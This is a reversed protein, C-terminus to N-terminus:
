SSGQPNLKIQKGFNKFFLYHTSNFLNSIHPDVLCYIFIFLRLMINYDCFIIRRTKVCHEKFNDDYTLYIYHLVIFYCSIQLLECLLIDLFLYKVLCGMLVNLSSLM